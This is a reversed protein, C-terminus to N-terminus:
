PNLNVFSDYLITDTIDMIIMPPNTNGDAKKPPRIYNYYHYKSCSYQQGQMFQLAYSCEHAIAIQALVIINMYKNNHMIIAQQCPFWAPNIIIM